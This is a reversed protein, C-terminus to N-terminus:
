KIKRDLPKDKVVVSEIAQLHLIRGKLTEGLLFKGFESTDRISEIDFSDKFGVQVKEDKPTVMSYFQPRVKGTLDVQITIACTPQILRLGERM